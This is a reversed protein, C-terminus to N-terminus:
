FRGAMGFVMGDREATMGAFPALDLGATGRSAAKAQRSAIVGAPLLVCYAAVELVLMPGFFPASGVGTAPGVTPGMASLAGGGIVMLGYVVASSVVLGLKSSGGSLKVARWGMAQGGLLLGGGVTSMVLGTAGVGISSFLFADDSTSQTALGLSVAGSALGIGGVVAGAIVLGRGTSAEVPAPAATVASTQVCFTFLRCEDDACDVKGDLDNDEGDVCKPATNEEETERSAEEQALAGEAFLLAAASLCSVAFVSISRMENRRGHLHNAQDIECM